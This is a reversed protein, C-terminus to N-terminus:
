NYTISYPAPIPLLGIIVINCSDQYINLAKESICFSQESPTSPQLNLNKGPTLPPEPSMPSPVPQDQPQLTIPRSQPQQQQPPGFMQQQQQQILGSHQPRAQVIQQQQQLQQQQQATYYNGQNQLTPTVGVPYPAPSVMGGDQPTMPPQPTQAGHSGPTMPQPTMPQPTMPQPTVTPPPQQQYRQQQQQQQQQPLMVRGIPGNPQSFYAQQGQTFDVQPRSLDQAQSYYTDYGTSAGYGSGPTQPSPYGGERSSQPSTQQIHPNPSTLPNSSSSFPRPPPQSAPRHMAPSYQMSTQTGSPDYPVSPPASTPAMAPPSSYYRNGANYGANPDSFSTTSSPTSPPAFNNTPTDYFPANPEYSDRFEQYQEASTKDIEQFFLNITFYFAGFRRLVISKDCYNQAQKVANHM